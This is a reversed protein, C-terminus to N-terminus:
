RTPLLVLATVGPAPRELMRQLMPLVFALTKGTGTQASALIDRGGLVQPIAENQIPTPESFNLADIAKMLEPRLKFDSFAM